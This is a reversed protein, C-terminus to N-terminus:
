LQLTFILFYFNTNYEGNAIIDLSDKQLATEKLAQCERPKNRNRPSSVSVLQCSEDDKTTACRRFYFYTLLFCKYLALNIYVDELASIHLFPYDLELVLDIVM